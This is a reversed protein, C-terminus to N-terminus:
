LLVNVPTPTVARPDGVYYVRIDDPKTPDYMGHFTFPVITKGGNTFAMSVDGHTAYARWLWFTNVPAAASGVAAAIGNGATREWQPTGTTVYELGGGLESFPCIVVSTETVAKFQSSGGGKKGLPSISPWVSATAANLVLGASIEARTLQAQAQHPIAGTREPLALVNTEYEIGVTRDGELEGVCVMGDAILPDGVFVAAPGISRLLTTLDVNQIM